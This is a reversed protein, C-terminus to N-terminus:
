KRLGLIYVINLDAPEVVGVSSVRYEVGSLTVLSDIVPRLSLNEIILKIDSSLILSGDIERNNFTAKVGYGIVDSYTPTNTRTSADFTKGTLVNVTISKGFRKLLRSATAQMKPYNFATM